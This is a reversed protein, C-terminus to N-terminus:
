GVEKDPWQWTRALFIHGALLLAIAALGALGVALFSSWLGLDSALEVDNPTAASLRVVFSLIWGFGFVVLSWLGLVLGIVMQRIGPIM